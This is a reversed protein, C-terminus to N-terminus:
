GYRKKNQYGDHLAKMLKKALDKKFIHIMLGPTFNVEIVVAGRNTEMFDVACIELGLLNAIRVSIEKMEKTPEIRKATGGLSVNARWEGKRGKRKITVVEKGFVYCRVDSGDSPVFEQTSIFEKFVQLTDLISGFERDSNILMVGRGGFGSLLKVVTPFGIRSSLKLAPKPSACLTTAPVPVNIEALEKVTYYKHNTILYGQVSTPMYVDSNELVDLIIEAFPIDDNFVRVYCADFELLDVNKYFLKTEGNVCLVRIKNLPVSLVTDFYKKAAELIAVRPEESAQKGGILLFKM